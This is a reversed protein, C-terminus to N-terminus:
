IWLKELNQLKKPNTKQGHWKPMNYQGSCQGSHGVGTDPSDLQGSIDPIMNGIDFMSINIKIVTQLFM